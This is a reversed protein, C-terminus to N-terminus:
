RRRTKKSRTAAAQRTAPTEGSPRHTRFSAALYEVSNKAREGIGGSELLATTKDCYEEDGTILYARRYYDIALVPNRELQDAMIGLSEAEALASDLFARIRGGFEPGYEVYETRIFDSPVAAGPALVVLTNKGLAQMLGLEYFVNGYTSTPMNKYIIAIGLPVTVIISWIKHLLDKGTTTTIADVLSFDREALLRELHDRIMGVVEPVDGGVKSMLFCTRPRYALPKMSVVGSTPDYQIM